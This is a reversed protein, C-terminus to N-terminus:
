GTFVADSSIYTFRCGIDRAARAWIRLHNEAAADIVPYSWASESAAGCYVIRDPRITAALRRADDFAHLFEAAAASRDTGCVRHGNDLWALALNSGVVTDTGVVL